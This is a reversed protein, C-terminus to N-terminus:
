ENKLEEKRHCSPCLEIIGYWPFIIYYGLSHHMHTRNHYKNCISCIDIRPNWDLLIRINKFKLRNKNHKDNRKKRNIDKNHRTKVHCDQCIKNNYYNYWREYKGNKLLTTNSGCLFCTYKGVLNLIQSM